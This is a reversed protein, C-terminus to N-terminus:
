SVNAIDMKRVCDHTQLREVTSNEVQHNRSQRSLLLNAIEAATSGHGAVLLITNCTTLQRADDRGFVRLSKSM